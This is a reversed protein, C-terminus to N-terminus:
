SPLSRRERIGALRKELAAEAEPWERRIISFM